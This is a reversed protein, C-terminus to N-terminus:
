LLYDSISSRSRARPAPTIEKGLLWAEFEASSLKDAKFSAYKESAEKMWNNYQYASLTGKSKLYRNHKTVKDYLKKLENARSNRRYQRHAGIKKCSYGNDTVRDCYVSDTRGSPFFYGGCNECIKLPKGAAVATMIELAFLEKTENLIFCPLVSDSYELTMTFNKSIYLKNKRGADFEALADLSFEELTILKSLEGRAYKALETENYDSFHAYPNEFDWKGGLSVAGAGVPYETSKKGSTVTITGGNIYAKIM